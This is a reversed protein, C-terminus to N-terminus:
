LTDVFDLLERLSDALPKGQRYLCSTGAVIVNAGAATMRRINAFTTNGDVEILAPLNRASLMERLEAIKGITHEVLRQGAFGPNVTMVLVLEAEGLAGDIVSLPTEPKVALAPRGGSDRIVSLTRGLDTTAEAHVSIFPSKGAALAQILPDPSTVMMHIDLTLQTIAAIAQVIPPGMTINPVFHGDMIDLHLLEIREREFLALERELNRFDSCMISPAIQVKM